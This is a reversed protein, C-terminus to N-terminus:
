PTSKTDPKVDWQLVGSMGQGDASRTAALLYRGDPTLTLSRPEFRLADLSFLPRTTEQDWFHVCKQQHDSIALLRGEDMFALGSIDSASLGHYSILKAQPVDVLCFTNGNNAAALRKGDRSFALHVMRGTPLPVSRMQFGALDILLLRSEQTSVALLRSDPSLQAAEPINRGLDLLRTMKKGAISWEELRGSEESAATLMELTGEGGFSVCRIPQGPVFSGELSWDSAKWVLVENGSTAVLRSGASDFCPNALPKNAISLNHALAGSDRDVIQLSGERGTLALRKGKPDCCIRDVGTPRRLNALRVDPAPIGRLDWVKATGDDSATLLSRGDPSFCVRRVRRSHAVFCSREVQSMEPGPMRWFIVSGDDCGVAIQKEDPSSAIDYIGDGCDLAAIERHNVLDFFRLLDSYGGAACINGRNLLLCGQFSEDGNTQCVTERPSGDVTNWIRLRQQKEASILWSGDPNFQLEYIVSGADIEWIPTLTSSRSGKAEFAAPLNWLKIKEERGGTALLKEDPSFALAYITGDHAVFNAAEKFSDMSWLIVRGDRYDSGAALWTGRPSFVVRTEGTFPRWSKKRAGTQLDWLSVIGSKDGTAAYKGDPSVAVSMTPSASSFTWQLRPTRVRNQLLHWEFGCPDTIGPKSPICDTLARRATDFDRQEIAGAAVAISSPYQLSRYIHSERQLSEANLEKLQANAARLQVTYASLVLSLVFAFGAAVVAGLAVGPRQRVWRAALEWLAPPKAKIPKQALFRRLDDSFERATQYREEPAKSIAKHVIVALDKPVESRVQRLPRPEKHLIQELLIQRDQAGFAPELALLEYLTIGLSYIDTRHDIVGGRSQEPSSYRLTGIRDGTLTLNSEGHTTALGFDTIWIQGQEDLMLNSPKIDRHVIRQQHAHEIADAADAALEAIRRFHSKGTGLSTTADDSVAPSPAPPVVLDAKPLKHKAGRAAKKAAAESRLRQTVEELTLGDIFQMAFFHIGRERGIFHVSVINPHDLTAAARAENQFRKLWRDDLMGAFPLVKVAVRRGLSVQEAEYVVGM